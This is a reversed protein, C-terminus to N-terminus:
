LPCPHKFYIRYSIFDNWLKFFRSSKMAAGVIAVLVFTINQSQSYYNPWLQADCKTPFCFSKEGNCDSGIDASVTTGLVNVIQIEIHDCLVGIFEWKLLRELGEVQGCVFCYELDCCLSAFIYCCACVFYKSTYLTSVFHLELVKGLTCSICTIRTPLIM